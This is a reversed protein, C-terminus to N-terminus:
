LHIEFGRGQKAGAAARLEDRALSGLENSNLRLERLAPLAGREFMSALHRAGANGIANFSLDLAQLKKCEPLKAAVHSAGADGVFNARLVVSKLSQCSCFAEMLEAVGENGICNGELEISRLSLCRKVAAALSAAEQNGWLLDCYVLTQASTMAEKFTARYMEQLTALDAPVAFAKAALEECFAEPVKPPGQRAKCRRQVEPWEPGEAELEVGGIDLLSSRAGGECSLFEAVAREFAPWGRAACPLVALAGAGGEAVAADEAGALDEPLSCSDPTHTLLWKETREHTFWLSATRLGEAFAAAEGESRPEQFLSCYDIFVALDVGPGLDRTRRRILQALTGLQAGLPDPHEPRLWCHSVAVVKHPRRQRAEAEYREADSRLEEPDWVAEPPLDQRRPLRGGREALEALWSGKVLVASPEAGNAPARLPEWLSSINSYKVLKALTARAEELDNDPLNHDEGSKVVKRLGALDRSDVAARMEQLLEERREMWTRLAASVYQLKCGGQVAELVFDRNERLPQAVCLMADGNQTVAELAFQWDERLAQSAHRLAHGNQSVAALVVERDERLAPSAHLLANGDVAVAALVFARDARLAEGAHVLAWSGHEAVGALV